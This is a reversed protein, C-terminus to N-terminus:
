DFINKWPTWLKLFKDRQNNKCYIYNEVDYKFKLYAILGSFSPFKNKKLNIYIYQKCALIIYNIATNNLCFTKGFIISVEDFEVSINTKSLIHCALNSWLDTIIECEAFIHLITEKDVECFFCEDNTKVKIKKLYYSVPLIRHVTRFQLWQLSSDMTGKFCIKFTDGLKVDELNILENRWRTFATPTVHKINVLKYIEKSVKDNLIIIRYFPPLYPSFIECPKNLSINKTRVLKCIASQMGNFKLICINQLAFKRQFSQISLFKGNEYFDGIIRVGKEYWNEIFVTKHNVLIESNFWVPILHSNDKLWVSDNLQKKM